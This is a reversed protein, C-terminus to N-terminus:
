TLDSLHRTSAVSRRSIVATHLLLYEGQAVGGARRRTRAQRKTGKRRRDRDQKRRRSGQSEEQQDRSRTGTRSGEAVGGADKQGQGAEKQSEGAVGGASGSEEQSKTVRSDHIHPM